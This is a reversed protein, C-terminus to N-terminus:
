TKAPLQRPAASNRARTDGAEVGKHLVIARGASRGESRAESYGHGQVRVARVRPHRVRYYDNLDADGVWVLGSQNAKTKERSLREAFGEMVGAIYTRRDRDRRIGQRRKHEKWLREATRQLFGHVYCSIDLNEPTGCLELVSGRKKDHARYGAVWIVEVFFHEALISALIHESEQRRGKPEGLYRFAYHQRESRSCLEINHRLMLKQAAAAANEAEHRNSSQALALLDSVRQLLRMRNEDDSIAAPMGAATADIGLNDCVRQFVPGHATEGVAGLIEHAYQHAMEHKLVELVTGWGAATVLKRSLVIRRREPEWRGLIEDSEGLALVPRKLAHRFFCANYDGWRQSLERLLAAELQADLESPGHTADDIATM